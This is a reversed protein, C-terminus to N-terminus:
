SISSLVVSHNGLMQSLFTLNRWPKAKLSSKALLIFCGRGWGDAQTILSPQGGPVAKWAPPQPSWAEGDLPRDNCTAPTRTASRSASCSAKLNCACGASKFLSAHCCSPHCLLDHLEHCRFHFWCVHIMVVQVIVVQAPPSM